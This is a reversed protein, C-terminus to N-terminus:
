IYYFENFYGSDLRKNIYHICNLDDLDIKINPKKIFNIIDEKFLAVIIACFTLFAMIIQIITETPM